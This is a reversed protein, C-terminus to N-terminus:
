REIGKGIAMAELVSQLRAAITGDIRVGDLGALHPALVGFCTARTLAACGPARRVLAFSGPAARPRVRTVPSISAANM